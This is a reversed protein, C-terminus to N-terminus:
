RGAKDAGAPPEKQLRELIMEATFYELWLRERTATAWENPEYNCALDIQSISEMAEAMAKRLKAQSDPKDRMVAVSREVLGRDVLGRRSWNGRPARAPQLFELQLDNM